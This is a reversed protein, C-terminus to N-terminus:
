FQAKKGWSEFVSLKGADDYGVTYLQTAGQRQTPSFTLKGAIIGTDFDKLKEMEAIFKERTLDRGIKELVHVILLRAARAM